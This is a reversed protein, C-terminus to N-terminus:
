DLMNERYFHIFNRHAVDELIENSLGLHKKWLDMVRGYATADEYEKFFLQDIPKQFSPPLDTGSFFDAGFCSQKAGGLSSLHEFQRVLNYSDQAGVFDKYLVFGILGKRKLIEKAIEDPLNRVVPSVARFNSHSAMVPIQWGKKDIYDLIDYALPDSTHSLDIAIRKKHMFDLLRRGDEKLGVKTHAGGGFRNEFNWTMSIYLLKSVEKEIFEIRKLGNELPENEEFLGSANEIAMLMKIYDSHLGESTLDSENFVQFDSPYLKPLQRFHAIQQEGKQVSGPHTESFVAMTQIKVNGERLQPLSCRVEPNMVSRSTDGALYCLLDCHIDVVSKM